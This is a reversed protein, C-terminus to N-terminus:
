LSTVIKKKWTSMKKETHRFMLLGLCTDDEQLISDTQGLTHTTKPPNFDLLSTNILQGCLDHIDTFPSAPEATTSHKENHNIKCKNQNLCELLQKWKAACFLAESSNSSAATISIIPSRQSISERHHTLQASTFLFGTIWSVLNGQFKM